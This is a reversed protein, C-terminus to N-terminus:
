LHSILTEHLARRKRKSFRYHHIFLLAEISGTLILHLLSAGKKIASIYFYVKVTFPDLRICDGTKKMQFLSLYNKMASSLLVVGVTGAASKQIIPYFTMASNM